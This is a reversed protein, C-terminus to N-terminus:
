QKNIDSFYKIIFIVGCILDIPMWIAKNHLYIPIIPNFIIAILGFVIVWIDIGKELEKIVVVTAGITVVIRLITFYGIPLNALAIFLFVACIISLIKM